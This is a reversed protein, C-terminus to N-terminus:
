KLLSLSRSPEEKIFIDAASIFHSPFMNKCQKLESYTQPDSKVLLLKKKSTNEPFFRSIKLGPRLQMKPDVLHFFM